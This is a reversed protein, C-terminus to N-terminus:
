YYKGTFPEFDSLKPLTEVKIIEKSDEFIEEEENSEVLRKLKGTRLNYDIQYTKGYGDSYLTKFRILEFKGNQFYFLHSYFGTLLQNEILLGGDVIKLFDFGSGPIFGDRGNVYQPEIAKQTSVMLDLENNSNRFYIEVLYPATDQLTDQTVIAVDSIGDHNM